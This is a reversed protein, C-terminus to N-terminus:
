GGLIELTRRSFPSGTSVKLPRDIAAGAGAYGRDSGALVMPPGVILDLLWPSLTSPRPAPITSCGSRSCGILDLLVMLVMHDLLRVELLVMIVKPGHWAECRWPHWPKCGNSSQFYGQVVHPSKILIGCSWPIGTM